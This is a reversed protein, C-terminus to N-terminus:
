TKISNNNQLINYVVIAEDVRNALQYSKGLYLLVDVPTRIERLSKEDFDLAINQSAEELYEIALLKKDDTELYLKGIMYKAFTNDPVEKIMRRYLDIAKELEKEEILFQAEGELYYIENWDQAFLASRVLIIFFILLINKHM